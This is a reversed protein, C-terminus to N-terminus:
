QRTLAQTILEEPGTNSVRVAQSHVCLDIECYLPTTIYMWLTRVLNLMESEATIVAHYFCFMHDSETINVGSCAKCTTQAQNRNILRFIDLM